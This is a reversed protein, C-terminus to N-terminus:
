EPARAPSKVGIDGRNLAFVCSRQLFPVNNCKVIRQWNRHKEIMREGYGLQLRLARFVERMHRGYVSAQGRLLDLNARGSLRRGGLVFCCRTNACHMLAPM